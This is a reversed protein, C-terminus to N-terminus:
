PQYHVSFNSAFQALRKDKTWLLTDPSTIVSALILLDNWQLGKGWLRHEELLFHTEEETASSITPLSRLDAITHPRQPLTGVSLEGIVLPHIALLDFELLSSLTPEGSRFYDCWINTDALVQM